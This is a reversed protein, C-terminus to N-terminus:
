SCKRTVLYDGIALCDVEMELFAKIADEPNEVTTTSPLKFSTNLLLPIGTRERFLHILQHLQPNLDKNITHYPCYGKFKQLSSTIYKLTKDLPTIHDKYFSVPSANFVEQHSEESVLLGVSDMSKGYENIFEVSRDHNPNALITRNGLGRPGFESGGQFWGVIKGESLESAVVKTIDSVKRFSVNEKYQDIGHMIENNSYSKGLYPNFPTKSPYFPNNTIVHYAYLASGISTDADGYSSFTYIKEFPTEELIKNNLASNFAAYGGICLNVSRTRQFLYICLSVMIKEFHHQAAYAIDAKVRETEHPTKAEQIMNKIFIEMQQSQKKSRKFCGNQDLTYFQEFEKLFTDTGYFSLEMTKIDELFDYGIGHTVCSYFEVISNTPYNPITMEGSFICLEKLNNGSGFFLGTTESSDPSDSIKSGCSDAVLIAAESFPSTFYSASAHSLLHNIFTIKDSYRAYYIPNLLNNAVVVDLEGKSIGANKLCYEAASCRALKLNPNSSVPFLSNKTKNIREEEIAVEIKKQNLLCASYSHGSGGLGLIRAM